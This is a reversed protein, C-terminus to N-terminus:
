KRDKQLLHVAFGGIEQELYVATIKGGSDRKAGDMDFKIGLAQMHAVAKNISNTAIAIHGNKGRMPAKTVEVAKGAFISSNGEKYDFGFLTSFLGAIQAAQEENEGNIGVHALEFGLMIKVASRALITIKDFDGSKLLDESVMWSGGCALVSPLSLYENLNNESIGGTPIFRVGGYPASIAKIVKVGGMAEAPFFKVTDLGLSIAAEIDSPNSCGPTIPIQRSVCYKVVEPNLGPSVIFKAGADVAKDVQEITLVTGAGVLMDPLANTIRKISQEANATRFTIEVCPLGGAYLAKALSVAKDADEIKVVPIIGIDSLRNLINM